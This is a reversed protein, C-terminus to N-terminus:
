IQHWANFYSNVRRIAKAGKEGFGQKFKEEFFGLSRAALLKSSDKPLKTLM